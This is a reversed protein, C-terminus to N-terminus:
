SIVGTKKLEGALEKLSQCLLYGVNSISLQTRESIQQYSMGEEYKLRILERRRQDMAELCLRTQGIAELRQIQEDPPLLNDPIENDGEREVGELPTNKRNDRLHNMALNHVTRYLWAKPQQVADYVVHLKLFADQVIDEAVEDQHVIQRAYLLLATEQAVFLSEISDQPATRADTDNSWTDSM